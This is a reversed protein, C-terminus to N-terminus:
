YLMITECFQFALFIFSSNLIDTNTLQGVVSIKLGYPRINTFVKM